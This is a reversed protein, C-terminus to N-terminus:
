RWVAPIIRRFCHAAAGESRHRPPFGESLRGNKGEMRNEHKFVRFEGRIEHKSFVFDPLFTERLDFVEWVAVHDGVVELDAASVADGEPEEAEEISRTRSVRGRPMTTVCFGANHASFWGIGLGEGPVVIDDSYLFLIAGSRIQEALALLIFGQPESHLFQGSHWTVAVMWSM